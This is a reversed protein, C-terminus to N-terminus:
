GLWPRLAIQYVLPKGCTKEYIAEVLSGQPTQGITQAIREALAYRSLGGLSIRKNHARSFRPFVVLRLSFYLEAERFVLLMLIKADRGNVLSSSWSSFVLSMQLHLDDIILVLPKSHASQLSFARVSRVAQANQGQIVLSTKLCSAIERVETCHRREECGRVNPIEPGIRPVEFTSCRGV